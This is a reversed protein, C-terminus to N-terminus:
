ILCQMGDKEPQHLVELLADAVQAGVDHLVGDDLHTAAEVRVVVEDDEGLAVQHRQQRFIQRLLADVLQRFDLAQTFLHTACKLPHAFRRSFM